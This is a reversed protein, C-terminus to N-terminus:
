LFIIYLSRLYFKSWYRLPYTALGRLSADIKRCHSCLYRIQASLNRIFILIGTWVGFIVKCSHKVHFVAEGMSSETETSLSEPSDNETGYGGSM